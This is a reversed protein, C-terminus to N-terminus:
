LAYRKESHQKLNVVAGDDPRTFPALINNLVEVARARGRSEKDYDADSPITSCKDLEKICSRLHAELVGWDSNAKLRNVVEQQIM